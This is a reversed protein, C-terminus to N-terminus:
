RSHLAQFRASRRAQGFIKEPIINARVGAECPLPVPPSAEGRKERLPICCSPCMRGIPLPTHTLCLAPAVNSACLNRLYPSGPLCLERLLKEDRQHPASSFLAQRIWCHARLHPLMAKRIKKARNGNSGISGPRYQVQYSRPRYKSRHSGPFFRM